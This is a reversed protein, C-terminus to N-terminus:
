SAVELTGDTNVAIVGSEWVDIVASAPLAQIAQAAIQLEFRGMQSEDVTCQDILIPTFANAEIPVKCYYYGDTGCVWLTGYDDGWTIDCDSLSASVGIINDGEKLVPILAVRIYAEMTGTNKIRVDSKVGEEFTESVECTMQAKQFANSITGSQAAIWAVTMGVTVAAMLGVASIVILKKLKKRKLWQRIQTYM